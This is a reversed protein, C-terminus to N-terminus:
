LETGAQNQRRRYKSQSTQTSVVSEIKRYNIKISKKESEEDVKDTKERFRGYFLTM